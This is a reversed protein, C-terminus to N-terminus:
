ETNRLPAATKANPRLFDRAAACLEAESRAVFYFRDGGPLRINQSWTPTKDTANLRRIAEAEAESESMHPEMKRILRVMIKEVYPNRYQDGM